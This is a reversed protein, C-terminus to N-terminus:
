IAKFIGRVKEYLDYLDNENPRGEINGLRGDYSFSKLKETNYQGVFYWEGIIEIGLHDFLQGMYKVAPVAENIGTHAGGYTCYVVAKKGALRPSSPLIAGQEVYQKRLKAFLEQMPKGPLWEYVGSGVFIMDYGLLDLSLDKTTIQLSDPTHGLDKIAKNLREAVKKTNNTMSYFLNLINM